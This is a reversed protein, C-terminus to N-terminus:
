NVNGTKRPRYADLLDHARGAIKKKVTLFIWKELEAAHGGSLREGDGPSQAIHKPDLGRRFWITSVGPNKRCQSHYRNLLTLRRTYITHIIFIAMIIFLSRASYVFGVSGSGFRLSYLPIYMELQTGWQDWNISAVQLHSLLTFSRM